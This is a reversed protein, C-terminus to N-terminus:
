IKGPTIFLYQLAVHKNSSKLDLRQSLYFCNKTTWENKRKRHEHIDNVHKYKSLLKSIKNKTTPEALIENHDMNSDIQHNM